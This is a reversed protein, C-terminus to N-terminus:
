PKRATPAGARAPREESLDIVPGDKTVDIVPEEGTAPELARLLPAALALARRDLSGRGREAVLRDLRHRGDLHVVGRAGGELLFSLGALELIRIMSPPLLLTVPVRRCSEAAGRFLLRLGAVGFLAVKTLDVILHHPGTDAADALARRLRSCSAADVEGECVLKALGDSHHVILRM